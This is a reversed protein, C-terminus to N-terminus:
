FRILWEMFALHLADGSPYIAKAIAGSSAHGYYLGLTANRNVIIDGSLDILTSLDSHGNAPRGNMGFTNPQFAGGGSYWLDNTSALTLKHIDSRVTLRPHPRLILEGFADVTDMLNFFPTRAYIRATPLMQMFTGHKGDSPDSDGSDYNYAARLWPKLKPLASPQWGIETAIASARHSLAGWSGTQGVGWFML